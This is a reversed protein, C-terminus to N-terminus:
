ATRGGNVFLRGWGLGYDSSSNSNSNLNWTQCTHYLYTSSYTFFIDWTPVWRPVMQFREFIRWFYNELIRSPSLSTKWSTAFFNKKQNSIITFLFLNTYCYISFCNMITKVPYQMRCLIIYINSCSKVSRGPILTLFPYINRRCSLSSCQIFSTLSNGILSCIRILIQVCWRLRLIRSWLRMKRGNIEM